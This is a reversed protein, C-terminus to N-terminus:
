DQNTSWNKIWDLTFTKVSPPWKQLWSLWLDLIQKCPQGFHQNSTGTPRPLQLKFWCATVEDRWAASICYNSGFCCWGFTSHLPHNEVSRRKQISFVKKKNNNKIVLVDLTNFHKQFTWKNWQTLERLSVNCLNVVRVSQKLGKNRNAWIM